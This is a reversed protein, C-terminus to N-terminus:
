DGSEAPPFDPATPTVSTRRSAILPWLLLVALAAFVIVGARRLSAYPQQYFEVGAGLLAPCAFVLFYGLLNFRVIRTVGIWAALVVVGGILFQRAFDSASGPDSVYTLAAAVFLVARMWTPRVYVAVFGSIAALVAILGMAHWASNAIANLAPSNPDLGPAPAANFYIQRSHWVNSILEGIRSVGLWALSGFAGIVLADRYYDRPMGAWGPLYEARGARSWLFWGLAFALAVAGVMCAFFIIWSIGLTAIFTKFPIQTSYKALIQPLGTINATVFGAAAVLSWGALRRWPVSEAYAQKINTFFIVLLAVGFLVPLGLSWYRLLTAGFTATERVRETEWQEPLKIFSRYISPEEGQVHLEMRQFAADDAKPGGALTKVNEWVFTHDTRHPQKESRADVLRWQSPDIRKYDVLWKAAIALAQDKTLNPGAAQSNLTHWVSHQSGDPKLLVAYEEQEGDRFYRVRWFAQPVQQEYIRNAADIGIKERLFENVLPGFQTVVIASKHYRGPDVHWGRLVDDARSAAERSDIQFRVFDGIEKPKVALLLGAGVIGCFVLLAIANRSLAQYAARRAPIEAAAIEEPEAPADVPRARNLVSEDVVFGGRALYLVGTIILPIFAAGGVLAGSIRLYNSPSRLLLLSGLVADV